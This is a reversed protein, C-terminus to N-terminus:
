RSDQLHLRGWGGCGGAFVVEGWGVSPHEFLALCCQLVRRLMSDLYLHRIAGSAKMKEGVPPGRGDWDANWTRQWLGCADSCKAPDTWWTEKTEKSVFHFLPTLPTGDDKKQTTPKKCSPPGNQQVHQIEKSCHPLEYLQSKKFPRSPLIWLM